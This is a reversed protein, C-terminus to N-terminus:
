MECKNTAMVTIATLEWRGETLIESTEKRGKTAQIASKNCDHEVSPKISSVMTQNEVRPHKSIFPYPWLQDFLLKHSGFATSVFM